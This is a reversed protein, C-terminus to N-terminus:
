RPQPHVLPRRHLSLSFIKIQTTRQLLGGGGGGNGSYKRARQEGGGFHTCAPSYLWKMKLMQFSYMFEVKVIKVM